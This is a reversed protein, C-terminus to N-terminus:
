KNIKPCYTNDCPGVTFGEVKGQIVKFYMDGDGSIPGPVRFKTNTLPNLKVKNKAVSSITYLSSDEYTVEIIENESYKYKGVYSKLINIDVNLINKNKSKSLLWNYLEQNQYTQTWSDHELDPYLTLKADGGFENLRDILRKSELYPITADKFGHFAWVPVDRMICLREIDGGGCIPAIAAFRQPDVEALSWTGFGGMSLGSVYIKNKDIPLTSEIHDLLNLLNQADWNRNEPCQPSVVVFPFDSKNDLFSPPGKKKLLNIDSGREDSGHLFLLLPYLGKESTRTPVYLLYNTYSVMSKEQQQAQLILIGNVFFILIILIKKM